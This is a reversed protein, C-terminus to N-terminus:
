FEEDEFLSDFRNFRKNSHIPFNMPINFVITISDAELNSIWGENLIMKITDGPYTLEISVNIKELQYHSLPHHLFDNRLGKQTLTAVFVEDYDDGAAIKNLSATVKGIFSLTKTETNKSYVLEVIGDFIVRALYDKLTTLYKDTLKRQEM